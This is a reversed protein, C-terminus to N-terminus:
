HIIEIRNSLFSNIFKIKSFSIKIESTGRHWMRVHTRSIGCGAATAMISQGHLTM